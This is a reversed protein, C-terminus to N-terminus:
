AARKRGAVILYTPAGLNAFLRVRVLLHEVKDIEAWNASLEHLNATEPELETTDSGVHVMCDALQEPGRLIFDALFPEFEDGAVHFAYGHAIKAIFRTMAHTDIIPSTLSRYGRPIWLPSLKRVFAGNM